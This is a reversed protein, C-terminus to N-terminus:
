PDYKFTSPSSSVTDKGQMADSERQKQQILRELM